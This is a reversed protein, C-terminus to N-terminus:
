TAQADTRCCQTSPPPPINPLEYARAPDRSATRDYSNLAAATSREKSRKEGPGEGFAIYVVSMYTGEACEKEWERM